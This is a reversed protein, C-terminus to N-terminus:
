RGRAASRRRGNTPCSRTDAAAVRDVDRRAAHGVEDPKDELVGLRLEDHVRDLVLQSKRHLVETQAGAVIRLRMSSTSSWIPMASSRCRRMLESEPPSFCRTAIARDERELGLDEHEVLGGRLEIRLGRLLDQDGQALEVLVLAQGDDQALVPQFPDRLVHVADQVQGGQARRGHQVLRPRDHGCSGSTGGSTSSPRASPQCGRGSVIM